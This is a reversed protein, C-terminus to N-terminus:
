KEGFEAFPSAGLPGPSQNVQYAAIAEAILQAYADTAGGFRKDEQVLLIIDDLNRDIISVDPKAYKSKGCILFRLEQRTSVVRPRHIYGLSQFLSLQGNWALRMLARLFSDM